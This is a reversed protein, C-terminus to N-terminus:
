GTSSVFLDNFAQSVPWNKAPRCSRVRLEQEARTLSIQGAPTQRLRFSWDRVSWDVCIGNGGNLIGQPPFQHLPGAHTRCLSAPLPYLHGRADRRNFSEHLFFGIWAIETLLRETYQIENFGILHKAPSIFKKGDRKHDSLIKGKM